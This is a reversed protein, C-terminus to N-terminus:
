PPCRSRPRITDTLRLTEGCHPCALRPPTDGAPDSPRSKEVLRQQAKHDAALLQRALALRQRNGPALFGYYRVKVFGQPLVHQLFRQMFTFVPLTVSVRRKTQRQKYWFTVADNALKVIRSNSIGVRFVYDALYAVAKEGHGVLKSHVVWEQQWASAPIQHYLGAKQLGDRMKARFLKSLPEVRVFFHNRASLWRENVFDLGGGPVLFHLHPHYGLDRKWTHLIGIAGVQGGVFRPDAALEQLAEAAARFLLNYVVQQNAYAVARVEQPLTFTVLFYPVPLLMAQQQALWQEAKDLQCQNCHRNRCSHYSYVIEGCADCQYVHGGLAETRCNEICWMVRLHSPLLEDQYAARYAPGYRRFIEALTVM